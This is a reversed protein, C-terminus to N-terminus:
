FSHLVITEMLYHKLLLLLYKLRNMENPSNGLRTKDLWIFVM